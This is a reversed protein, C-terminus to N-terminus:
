ITCIFCLINGLDSIVNMEREGWRGWQLLRVFTGLKAVSGDFLGEQKLFIYLIYEFIFSDKLSCPGAQFFFM